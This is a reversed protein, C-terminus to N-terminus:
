EFALNELRDIRAMRWRAQAMEISRDRRGGGPRSVGLAHFHSGPPAHRSAREHTAILPGRRRFSIDGYRYDIYDATCFLRSLRGLFRARFRLGAADAGPALKRPADDSRLM